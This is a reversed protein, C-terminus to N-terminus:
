ELLFNKLFSKKRLFSTKVGTKFTGFEGPAVAIKEMKKKIRKAQQNAKSSLAKTQEESPNFLVELDDYVEDLVDFTHTESLSSLNEIDLKLIKRDPSLFSTKASM